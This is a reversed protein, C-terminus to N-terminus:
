RAVCLSVWFGEEFPITRDIETEIDNGIFM